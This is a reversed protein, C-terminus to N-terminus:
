TKILFYVGIYTTELSYESIEIAAKYFVYENYM